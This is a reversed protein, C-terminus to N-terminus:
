TPITVKVEDIQESTAANTKAKKVVISHNTEVCIEWDERKRVNNSDNNNNVDNPENDSGNESNEM